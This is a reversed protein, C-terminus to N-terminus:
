ITKKYAKVIELWVNIDVEEARIKESLNLTHFLARWFEKNHNTDYLTLNNILMKRKQGFGAHLM